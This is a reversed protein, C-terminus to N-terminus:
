VKVDEQNNNSFKMYYRIETEEIISFGLKQYLSIARKNLKYVWLYVIDWETLLQKLINTGIKKNRNNEELYLENILLGDDKNEICLCGVKHHNVEIMKYHELQKHVQEKVYQNIQEKEEKTLNGAYEFINNLEYDILKSIDQKTAKKLEYEM